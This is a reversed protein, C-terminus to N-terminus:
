DSAMKLPKMLGKFISWVSPESVDAFSLRVGDEFAEDLRQLHVQCLTEFRRCFKIRRRPFVGWFIYLLRKKNTPKLPM